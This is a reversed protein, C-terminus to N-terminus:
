AAVYRGDRLVPVADSVDVQEAVEVDVGFGREVLEHGSPTQTLPRLREFAAAAADAEPSLDVTLGQSRLRSIVAGAGVLDEYAPRLSDDPWREGAPVVCVQEAERLHRAVAAANRLCGAVVPARSAMLAHSIQSGNPSPLVLRTGEPLELLSTPSLSPGDRQTRPGALVAEITRALQHAHEGGPHPWVRAGREVAVCVATSFSLVDVVVVPHGADAFRRAGQLGWELDVRM